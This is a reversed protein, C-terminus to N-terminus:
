PLIQQDKIQGEGELVRPRSDEKLDQKKSTEPAHADVIIRNDVRSVGPQSEVVVTALGKEEPTRVVGFLQVKGDKVKVQLMQWNIREDMRLKEEIKAALREDNEKISTIAGSEPTAGLVLSPEATILTATVTAVALSINLLM